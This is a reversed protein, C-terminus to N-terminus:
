APPNTLACDSRNVPGLLHALFGEGPRLSGLKAGCKPWKLALFPEVLPFVGPFRRFVQQCAYAGPYVRRPCLKRKQEATDNRAGSPRLRVSFTWAIEVSLNSRARSRKANSQARAIVSFRLKHGHATYIHSLPSRYPRV